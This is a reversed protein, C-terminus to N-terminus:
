AVGLEVNAINGAVAESVNVLAVAVPFHQVIEGTIFKISRRVAALVAQLGVGIGPEVLIHLPLHRELICWCGRM